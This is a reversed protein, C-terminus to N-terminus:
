AAKATAPSPSDTDPYQDDIYWDLLQPIMKLLWKPKGRAISVDIFRLMGGWIRLQGRRLDGLWHFFQDRAYGEETSRLVLMHGERQMLAHADRRRVARSPERHLAIRYETRVTDHM